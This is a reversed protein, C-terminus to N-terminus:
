GVFGSLFNAVMQGLNQVNYGGEQVLLTPMALEHIKEGVESYVEKTLTFGGIPDESFTDFGASVVLFDPKFKKVDQLATHLAKLYAANDTGLPLPYNHNYGKGKGYGHEQAFGSSYPYREEPNAHISVYLVDSRDYFADQTGNGHHFDIDLVAVRGHASLYHAAIAANNFYCYGGMTHHAAHHGPPRCLSYVVTESGDLVQQAGTLACNVAAVSADYTGAVIPAYTDTIFYSPYLIDQDALHASRNKIFEVYQKQHIAYIHGLPFKQPSIVSGFKKRRLADIIVEGRDAAEAYPELEGEYIEYPPNHAQHADTYVIVM